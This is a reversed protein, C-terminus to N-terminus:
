QVSEDRRPVLRLSGPLLEAGTPSGLTLNFTKGEEDIFCSTIPPWRQATEAALGQRKLADKLLALQRMNSSGSCLVRVKGRELREVGHARIWEHEELLIGVDIHRAGGSGAAWGIVGAVVAAAVCRLKRIRVM